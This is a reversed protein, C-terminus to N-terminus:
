FEYNFWGCVIKLWGLPCSQIHSLVAVQLREPTFAEPPSKFVPLRLEERTSEDTTIQPKILWRSMELSKTWYIIWLWSTQAEPKLSKNNLGRKFRHQSCFQLIMSEDGTVFSFVPVTSEMLSLLACIVWTDTTINDFCQPCSTRFSGFGPESCCMWFIRAGHFVLTFYIYSPYM